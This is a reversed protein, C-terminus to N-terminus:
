NLYSLIEKSAEKKYDSSNDNVILSLQGQAKKTQNNKLYALALYWRAKKNFNASKGDLSRASAIPALLEIADDTKELQLMCLGKYYNIYAEESNKVSNFLNIAKHFNKAEYAVFARYEITQITEGREIPQVTNRCPSFYETYIAENSPFYTTKVGWIGLSTVLLLSAAVMWKKPLLMFSKDKQVREEIDTLTSKLEQMQNSAIVKKLDKQFLFESKFESDNQLLHDFLHQEKPTLSNEFYRDILDLNKM